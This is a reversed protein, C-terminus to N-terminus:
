PGKKGKAKSGTKEKIADNAAKRDFAVTRSEGVGFSKAAGEAFALAAGPDSTFATRGGDHAVLEWAPPKEPDGVLLCGQRLDHPRDYTMAVLALGLVYRRLADGSEGKPGIARLAVLSLIAERRIEGRVVVGGHTGAAPAHRFGLESAVDLIKKDESENLIAPVPGAM